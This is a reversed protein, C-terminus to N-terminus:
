LRVHSTHHNPAFRLDSSKESGLWLFVSKFFILNVQELQSALSRTGECKAPTDAGHGFHPAVM